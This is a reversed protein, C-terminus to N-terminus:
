FETLTCIRSCPGNDSASLGEMMARMHLDGVSRGFVIPREGGESEDSALLSHTREVRTEKGLHEPESGASANEEKDYFESEAHEALLKTRRVQLRGHARVRERGLGKM